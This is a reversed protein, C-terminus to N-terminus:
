PTFLFNGIDQKKFPQTVQGSVTLTSGEAQSVVNDFIGCAYYSGVQKRAEELIQRPTADDARVQISDIVQVVSPAKRAAWEADLKAGLSAPARKSNVPLVPMGIILVEIAWGTARVRGRLAGGATGVFPTNTM